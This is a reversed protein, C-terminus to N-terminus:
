GKWVESEAFTPLYFNRYITDINYKKRMFTKAMISENEKMRKIIVNSCAKLYEKLDTVDHRQEHSGFHFFLGNDPGGNIEFQMSLSRNLVLFAGSALSIEPSVLGYSEESTPFIFVNSLMMLERLMHRPLGVDYKGLGEPKWDSTFILDQRPIMGFKAALKYYTSIEEKHQRETAWQNAVVLAVSLGMEKFDHFLEIVYSLGKAKLRDAGAPYIQVVDAQMINPYDELFRTSEPGFDFFTRIDKIHPIIRVDDDSGRFQEAVRTRNTKNPFVIKHNPGYARINWWDYNTSPVSHVWHLWKLTDPLLGTAKRIGTAYPLNWGTFIWDHTFAFDFGMLQNKLVSAMNNALLEHEKTVETKTSYDILTGKPIIHHVHVPNDKVWDLRSFWEDDYGPNYVESTFIHVEHGYKQLMIAQDQMIGTLSYGPNLDQFNTLIAIKYAKGM